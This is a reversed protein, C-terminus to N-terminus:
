VVTVQRRVWLCLYEDSVTDYLAICMNYTTPKTHPTVYRSFMMYTTQRPDEVIRRYLMSV